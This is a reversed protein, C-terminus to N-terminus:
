FDSRRFQQAWNQTPERCPQIIQADRLSNVSVRTEWRSSRAALHFYPRCIKERRQDLIMLLSPFPLSPEKLKAGWFLIEDFWILYLRSLFHMIFVEWQWRVHLSSRGCCVYSSLPRSVSLCHPSIPHPDDSIIHLSRSWQEPSRVMLSSCLPSHHSAPRAARDCSHLMTLIMNPTGWKDCLRIFAAPGHALYTPTHNDNHTHKRVIWWEGVVCVCLSPCLSGGWSLGCHHFDMDNLWWVCFVSNTQFSEVDNLLRILLTTQTISELPITSTFHDICSKNKDEERDARGETGRDWVRRQPLSGGQPRM